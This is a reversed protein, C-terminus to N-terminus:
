CKPSVQVKGQKVTWTAAYGNSLKIAFTRTDADLDLEFTVSQGNAMGSGTIKAKKGSVVLTSISTSQFAMPTAKDDFSVSGTPAPAGTKYRVSFEFRARSNERPVGQGLVTGCTSGGTPPANVTTGETDSNNASNPDSTSTSASATNSLDADTTPTVKITVTASAGSALTGITCSVTATGSCTGQTSSASVFSVTAPLTDSVTVNEAPDPGSNQVVITYTLEQGVLVPDPADSKTVSVDASAPATETVTIPATPGTPSVSGESATGGADNLYEGPTTSVTVNFHLAVSGGAPVNFPGNWTLTQGSISPDSTTAGTTSGGTYSFGAPLVDFISNLTAAEDSPNSVTITYGNSGGAATTASDATKATSLVTAGSQCGDPATTGLVLADVFVASDYIHDGQDFISLYLSHAGATIAKSAGLLPTAGDYTTGNADEVSMSAAGAANISIVNGDPDFAFNDPATIDSGSTSWSSTDLEAIFADNYQSDVFEPFEDSLFRFDLSLCNRGAPVDLDIKLITVDLDTDGRVNDGGIDAGTSGSDNPDDALNADGSTLIAYTDGARPFGGLATGSDAVANPTGEPPVAVFSAGTVVSPSTAISSALDTASTTPTITSLASGALLLTATTVGVVAAILRVGRTRPWAM